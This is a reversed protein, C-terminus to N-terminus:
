ELSKKIYNAYSDDHWVGFYGIMKGGENLLPLLLLSANVLQGDFRKINTKHIGGMNEDKFLDKDPFIDFIHKKNIVYKKSFGTMIEASKNFETLVGNLNTSFISGPYNDLILNKYTVFKKLEDALEIEHTIDQGFLLLMQDDELNVGGWRIYTVVGDKSLIRTILKSNNNDQQIKLSKLFISLDNVDDPHTYEILYKGTINESTCCGVNSRFSKNFRIVRGDYDLILFTFPIKNFYKTLQHLEKRINLNSIDLEGKLQDLVDIINIEDTILDEKSKDKFLNKWFRM